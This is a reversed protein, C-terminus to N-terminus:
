AWNFFIHQISALLITAMMLSALRSKLYLNDSHANIQRMGGSSAGDFIFSKVLM